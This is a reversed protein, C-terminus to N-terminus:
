LQAAPAVTASLQHRFEDGEQGALRLAGQRRMETAAATDGRQEYLRALNLYAHPDGANENRAHEFASEAEGLDGLSMWVAGAKNWENASDHSVWAIRAFVVLTAAMALRGLAPRWSRGRVAEFLQVAGHGALVCLMPIMPMRFRALYFFMLVTAIGVLV